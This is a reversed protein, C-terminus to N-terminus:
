TQLNASQCQCHCENLSAPETIQSEESDVDRDGNGCCLSELCEGLIAGHLAPETMLTERYCLKDSIRLFGHKPLCPM